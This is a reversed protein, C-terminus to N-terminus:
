VKLGARELVWRLAAARAGLEIAADQDKRRAAHQLKEGVTRLEERITTELDVTIQIPGRM